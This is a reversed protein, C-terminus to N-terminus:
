GGFIQVTVVGSDFTPAQTGLSTIVHCSSVKNPNSIGNNYGNVQAIMNGDNNADKKAAGATVSYNASTMNQTFNVQYNGTGNDTISSVNFSDRIAVTGTGNFNVWAKCVQKSLNDTPTTDATTPNVINAVKLNSM